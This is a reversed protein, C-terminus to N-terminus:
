RERHAARETRAINLWQGSALPAACCSRRRSRRRCYPVPLRPYAADLSFTRRNRPGTLACGASSLEGLMCHLLEHGLTLTGGDDVARPRQENPLYIECTRAGTERNTKLISFGHRYDQRLERRDINAGYKAQLLVLEGTSVYSVVVRMDQVDLTAKIAEGAFM